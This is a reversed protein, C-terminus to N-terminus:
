YIFERIDYRSIRVARPKLMPLLTQRFRTEEAAIAQGSLSSYGALEMEDLYPSNPTAVFPSLYVLDGAGLPMSGIASVTDAFHADQYEEGGVGVMIILGVQLGGAKITEVADLVDQISGPKQLFVRLPNHGTELGVYLRRVNLAALERMELASKRLADPASVFANIGTPTWDSPQRLVAPATESSRQAFTFQRNITELIPLLRKQAIVIANADALFLSPRILLGRGLLTRVDAIHQEVEQVGKIRFRRDRYFTCFTCENYSCGETVQLVVSLYQDPPLISVPKYIQNFRESQYQYATADWVVTQELWRKVHQVFESDSAGVTVLGTDTTALVYLADAHARELLDDVEASELYRRQRQGSSADSWKALVRNDLSRRYTVNEYWAGVLRGEGDFTLNSRGDFSLTLAGASTSVHM